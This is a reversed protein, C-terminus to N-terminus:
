YRQYIDDIKTKFKLGKQHFVVHFNDLKKNLREIEQELRQKQVQQGRIFDLYLDVRHDLEKLSQQNKVLDIIDQKNLGEKKIRKFLYIFLPFDNKLDNYMKFLWDMKLLRLYDNYYCFVTDTDLDMEIAIDVLPKRDKFMQFSQTYPSLIKLLDLREKEKRLEDDKKTAVLEDDGTEKRIITGIDRLSIHAEKAIERTTKGEHALKIVLKEKEKRSLLL